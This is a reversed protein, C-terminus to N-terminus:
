TRLKRCMGAACRYVALYQKAVSEWSFRAAFERASGGLRDKPSSHDLLATVRHAIAAADGPPVLMGTQDDRILDRNGSVDTAVIASGAAMADLLALSMGEAGEDVAASVYIDATRYLSALLDQDGSGTEDQKGGSITFPIPGTLVVQETLGLHRITKELPEPHRGVIVLRAEPHQELISPMAQILVEHGKRPHYNGVSLIMRCDPRLGLAEKVAPDPRGQFREIDIGNPIDIIREESAGAALLSKRISGSIATMLQAQALAARAKGAKEPDLMLGFGMEPIVHIDFGHPTLVFPIPKKRVIGSVAYGCPYTNHAHIVDAGFLMLDLRLQLRAVLEPMAGRLTPWRHVPYAFGANRQRLWGSPGLVRVRHGQRHFERALYHVVIERGGIAPLFSNTYLVINM